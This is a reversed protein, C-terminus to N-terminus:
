DAAVNTLMPLKPFDLLFENLEVDNYLLSLSAAVGQHRNCCLIAGTRAQM